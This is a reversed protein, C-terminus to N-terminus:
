TWVIVQIRSWKRGVGAGTRTVLPNGRVRLTFAAPPGPIIATSFQGGGDHGVELDFAQGVVQGGMSPQAQDALVELAEGLDVLNPSPFPSPARYQVCVRMSWILAPAVTFSASCGLEVSEQWKERNKGASEKRFM